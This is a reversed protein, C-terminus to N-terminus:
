QGRTQSVGRRVGALIGQGIHEDKAFANLSEVFADIDVDEDFVLRRLVGLLFHQCENLSRLKAPDQVRNSSPDYTERGVITLEWAVVSAVKMLQSRSVGRLQKALSSGDNAM